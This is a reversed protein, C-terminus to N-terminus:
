FCLHTTFCKGAGAVCETKTGDMETTYQFGCCGVSITYKCDKEDEVEGNPDVEANATNISLLSALRLDTTSSSVGNTNFFMTAAIVAIGLIGIIKKM